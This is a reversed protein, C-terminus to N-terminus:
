RGDRGTPAGAPASPPLSELRRREEPPVAALPAHQSLQLARVYAVIAWRDAVPIQAALSAQRGFGRTIVDFLYGPQADRLREQHLSPPRPYGRRVVMGLGEGLRDHCPACFIDYRERGRELAKRDVRLPIRPAFEAGRRGAFYIEDEELHGRAVTGPVTPRASRDDGWFDSYELPRYAPQDAMRQRCAGSGVLALALILAEARWKM